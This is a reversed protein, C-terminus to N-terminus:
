TTKGIQATSYKFTQLINSVDHMTSLYFKSSSKFVGQFIMLENLLTM